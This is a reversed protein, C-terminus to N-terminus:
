RIGLACRFVGQDDDIFKAPAGRRVVPESQRPSDRLLCREDRAKGKRASWVRASVNRRLDVGEAHEGRVEMLQGRELLLNGMDLVQMNDRMDRGRVVVPVFPLIHRQEVLDLRTDAVLAKTDM